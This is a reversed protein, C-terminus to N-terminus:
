TRCANLVYRWFRVPDNDGEDLSVWALPPLDDQARRRGLWEGAVTTKGFGAPASILTVRKDLGEDLRSLLRPRAILSRKQVRGAAQPPVLKTSLLEREGAAQKESM